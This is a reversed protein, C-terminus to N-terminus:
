KELEHILKDIKSEGDAGAGKNDFAKIINILTSVTGNAATATKNYEAIAPNTYLNQRGKVYEKQVTTGLERIKSELDSLIQIQTQYTHFTNCFFFDTELGKEKAREM